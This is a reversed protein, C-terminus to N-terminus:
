WFLLGSCRGQSAPLFLIIRRSGARGRIGRSKWECVVLWQLLVATPLIRVPGGEQQGKPGGEGKTLRAWSKEGPLISMKALVLKTDKISKLNSLLLKNTLQQTWWLLLECPISMYFNLLHLPKSIFTPLLFRPRKSYNCSLASMPRWNSLIDSVPCFMGLPPM